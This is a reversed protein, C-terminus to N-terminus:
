REEVIDNFVDVWYRRRNYWILDGDLDCGSKIAKRIIREKLEKSINM